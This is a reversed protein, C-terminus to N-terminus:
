FTFLCGPSPFLWWWWRRCLFFFTGFISPLFFSLLSGSQLHLCLPLPHSFLLSHLRIVGNRKLRSPLDVSWGNLEVLVLWGFALFFHTFIELYRLSRRRGPPISSEVPHCISELFTEMFTLFGSKLLHAAAYIVIWTMRDSGAQKM